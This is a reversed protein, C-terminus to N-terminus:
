IQLCCPILWMESSKYVFQVKQGCLIPSHLCNRDIQHFVALYVLTAPAELFTKFKTMLAVISQSFSYKLFVPKKLYLENMRVPNSNNAKFPASIVTESPQKDAIIELFFRILSVGDGLAHHLRILIQLILYIWSILSILSNHKIIILRCVPNYFKGSKSGGDLTILRRAVLIEWSASHNYLLYKNALTGFTNKIYEENDEIGDTEDMDPVFRCISKPSFSHIVM